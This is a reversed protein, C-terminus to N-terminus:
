KGPAAEPKAGYVFDYESDERQDDETRQEKGALFVVRTRRSTRVHHPVLTAPETVLETFYEVQLEDIAYDPGQGGGLAKVKELFAAKVQPLEAEVPKSQLTLRVCRKETEGQACPVAEPYTLTETVPVVVNALTSPSLSAQRTLPKGPELTVGRWGAVQLTWTEKAGETVAKRLMGLVQQKQEGKQGQEDLLHEVKALVADAGEVRVFDGARSVVVTPINVAETGGLAKKQEESLQLDESVVALADGEGKVVMRYRSEGSETEEGTRLRSTTYTVEASLGEPWGFRPTVPGEPVPGAPPTAASAVSSKQTGACAALLATLVLLSQLRISASM